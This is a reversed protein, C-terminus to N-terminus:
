KHEFFVEYNDIYSDPAGALLSNAEMGYTYGEPLKYNIGLRIAVICIPHISLAYGFSPGGNEYKLAKSEQGEM